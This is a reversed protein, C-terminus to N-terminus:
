KIVSKKQVSAMCAATSLFSCPHSKCEDIKQDCRAGTVGSACDCSWKNILDTCLSEGVCPNSECEDVDIECFVGTFGSKCNCVFSNMLDNCIAGNKCVSAGNEEFCENVDIGCDAGTYGPLCDCKVSASNVPVKGNEIRPTGLSTCVSGHKCYNGFSEFCHM